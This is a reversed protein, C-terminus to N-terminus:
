LEASMVWQTTFGNAAATAWNTPTFAYMNTIATNTVITTPSVLDYTGGTQINYMRNAVGSYSWSVTPTTRMQVPFTFGLVGVASYSMVGILGTAQYYRQCAALEGQITGTATQFATAVSGAELQVGWFDVTFTTNIFLPFVVALYSNTGITKGSISPVSVTISYRAWSTSLTVSGGTNDVGSSGGTGFVQSIIPTLTRASDAKAWFSLTVTQGAYLRVNELKTGIQQYTGGSGAVSQNYRLFYTGEYGSVPATAPTFTQQSVTVTAGTGDRNVYFRDATYTENNAAPTFSTGRQWVGFDGNIIKNKGAFFSSTNLPFTANAQAQTYTDAVTFTGYAIVTIIDSVLAASSLVVSTGNTATYDTGRVQLVGNVYVQEAGVTYSLTLGNSDVGSFTTQGATATYVYQIANAAGIYTLSNWTASGTGVKIKGTDSEFGIEGAALTPNTSTWSAATGRRVQIQTQVAM